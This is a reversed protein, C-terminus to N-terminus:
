QPGSNPTGRDLYERQNVLGAIGDRRADEVAAVGRGVAAGAMTGVTTGYRSMSVRGGIAGGVIGGVAAGVTEASPGEGGSGGGGSFSVPSNLDHIDFM